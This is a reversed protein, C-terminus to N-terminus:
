GVGSEMVELRKDVNYGWFFAFVGKVCGVGDMGAVGVGVGGGQEEDWPLRVPSSGGGEVFRM